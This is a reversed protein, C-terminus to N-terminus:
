KWLHFIRQSGREKEKANKEIVISWIQLEYLILCDQLNQWVGQVVMFPVYCMCAVYELKIMELHGSEVNDMVLQIKKESNCNGQNTKNMFLQKILKWSKIWKSNKPM